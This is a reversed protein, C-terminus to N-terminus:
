FHPRTNSLSRQDQLYLVSKNLTGSQGKKLGFVGFENKKAQSVALCKLHSGVQKQM